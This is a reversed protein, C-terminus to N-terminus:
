AIIVGPRPGPKDPVGLYIRMENGDVRTTDWRVTM